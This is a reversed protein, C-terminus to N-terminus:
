STVAAQTRAASPLTTTFGRRLTGQGDATHSFGAFSTRRSITPRVAPQSVVVVRRGAAIPAFTRNGGAPPTGASIEGLSFTNSLGDTIDRFNLCTNAYMTGNSTFGGHDTTTNGTTPWNTVPNSGAVPGKVGMLGCYHATTPVQTFPVNAGAAESDGKRDALASSACFLLSFSVAKFPFNQPHNYHLSTNMQNYMPAQDAYPLVSVYWSMNSGPTAPLPTAQAIALCSWPLRNNTDHYNHLALGWQKLHNKCETRRAAERAQQVAPLLLAILIAIIAIVVLLEILTFGIRRQRKM